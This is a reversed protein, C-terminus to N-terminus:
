PRPGVLSMDGRLVNLLQPLEDLSTRRLWRGPTTVADDRTLKFLGGQEAVATGDMSERIYAEHVASSTGQRMTRFKLLTFERMDMGIRTQRFFAPGESDHRIWWSILAFAP